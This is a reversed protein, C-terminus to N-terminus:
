KPRRRKLRPETTMVRRKKPAPPKEPQSPKAVEDSLIAEDFLNSRQAQTEARQEILSLTKQVTPHRSPVRASKLLHERSIVDLVAKATKADKRREVWRLYAAITWPHAPLSKLGRAKCWRRFDGWMRTRTVM